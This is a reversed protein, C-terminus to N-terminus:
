LSEQSEEKILLCVVDELLVKNPWHNSHKDDLRCVRVAQSSPRRSDSTTPSTNIDQAAHTFGSVLRERFVKHSLTGGCSSHIIFAKLVTLDVLHFFLKKQGNGHREPFATATRWIDSMDVFGMKRKYSEICLPKSANVEEDVYHGSIPPEHMNTFLYIERKDTWCVASTGGKVKCLIDGKKLKLVKPGFNPLMGKRNHRVTGCSNIKRKHLDSFLQPSSCYNDMFLKHGVGEVKRLLKLV